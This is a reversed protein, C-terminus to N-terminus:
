DVIIEEGHELGQLVWVQQRNIFANIYRKRTVGESLEMIYYRGADLSVASRPILLVNELYVAKATVRPNVTPMSDPDYYDPKVYAYGTQQGAPIRLDEGVVRGPISQAKSGNGVTITVEMGYRLTGAKNSAKVLVGDTQYLIIMVDDRAIRDGARRTLTREIIGDVPAVILSEARQEEIEEIAAEIQEIAAEQQFIYQELALEARNLELKLMQAQYSDKENLLKLYMADIAELRSEQGMEFADRARELSLKKETLAVEDVTSEFVALVDGAKVVDGREVTYEVFTLGGVEPYLKYTYPLYIEGSVSMEQVLTGYEVPSMEYNVTNSVILDESILNVSQALANAPLLCMCLIIAM